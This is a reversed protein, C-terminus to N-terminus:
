GTLTADVKRASLGTLSLTLTVHLRHHRRRLLKRAKPGLRLILTFEGRRGAFSAHAIELHLLRTRHRAGRVPVRIETRM